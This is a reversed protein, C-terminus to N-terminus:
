FDTMLYLLKHLHHGQGVNELYSSLSMKQIASKLAMMTTLIINVNTWPYGLNLYFQSVNDWSHGEDIIDLDDWYRKNLLGNNEWVCPSLIFFIPSMAGSNNSTKM